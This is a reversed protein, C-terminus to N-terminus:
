LKVHRDRFWVFTALLRNGCISQKTLWHVHWSNWSLKTLSYLRFFALDCVPAAVADHHLTDIHNAQSQTRISWCQNPALTFMFDHTGLDIIQPHKKQKTAFRYPVQFSLIHFLVIMSVDNWQLPNCTQQCSKALNTRKSSTAINSEIKPQINTKLMGAVARRVALHLGQGPHCRPHPLHLWILFKGRGLLGM